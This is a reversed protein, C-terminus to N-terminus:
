AMFKLLRTCQWVHWREGAHLAGTARSTSKIRGQYSANRAAGRSREDFIWIRPFSLDHSNRKLGLGPNGTACCRCTQVARPSLGFWSSREDASPPVSHPVYQVHLHHITITTNPVLISNKYWTRHGGRKNISFSLIDLPDLTSLLGILKPQVGSGHPGM